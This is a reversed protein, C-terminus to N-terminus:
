NRDVKSLSLIGHCRCSVGIALSYPPTLSALYKLTKKVETGRVGGAGDFHHSVFINYYDVADSVSFELLEYMPAPKKHKTVPCVRPQSCDTKCRLEKAMYSSIIIGSKEDASLVLRHPLGALVETLLDGGSAVKLGKARLWSNVFKGLSHGPAAPIIWQPVEEELIGSLSETADGVILSVQGAKITGQTTSVVDAIKRATCDPNTDIILTRAKCERGLRAAKTGFYGGGLCVLFDGKQFVAHEGM